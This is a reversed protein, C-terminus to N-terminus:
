RRKYKRGPLEIIHGEIVLMLLQYSIDEYSLKSMKALDDIYIPEYGILNFLDKYNSNIDEFIKINERKRLKLEPFESIIDEVGRVLIAGNKILSNPVYGNKNDLSSPICFVKKGERKTIKATVSTGSRYAGEIILVAIALGSVIRNRELFKNSTAKIFDDYESLVLGNSKIINDYLKMNEEPYINDIGSPLVAITNGGNEIAISHAYSDIGKAMGSIINLGYESLEKAFKSVMQIGYESCNRSGVIAIGPKNLLKINGICKLEKPPNRINKLIEPYYEDNLLIIQKKFNTEM